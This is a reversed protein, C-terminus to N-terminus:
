FEEFTFSRNLYQLIKKFYMDAYQVAYIGAYRIHAICHDVACM